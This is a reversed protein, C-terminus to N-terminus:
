TETKKLAQSLSVDLRSAVLQMLSEFERAPLGLREELLRRTEDLITKRAKEVWRLVTTRHVRYLAGIEETSAGELFHLRLVHRERSPLARLTREFATAFEKAYRAKMYGLEPDAGAARLPFRDIPVAGQHRAQAERLNIATRVAAVRLWGGLPGRGRYEAIRPQEGDKAVLLRERLLQRVEQIFDPTTEQKSLYLGVESLYLRDLEAIARVNGCACACALYLDSVETQRVALDAEREKAVHEAWHRLFAAPDLQVTSHQLQSRGVGVELIAELDAMAGLTPRAAGAHALFLRRFTKHAM